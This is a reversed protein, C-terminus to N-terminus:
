GEASFGFPCVSYGIYREVQKKKYKKLLKIQFRQRLENNVFNQKIM